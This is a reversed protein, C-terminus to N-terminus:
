GRLVGIFSIQSRPLTQPFVLVREKIQDTPNEIHGVDSGAHRHEIHPTAVPPVQPGHSRTSHLSDTAIKRVSHEPCM